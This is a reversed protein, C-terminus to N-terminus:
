QLVSRSVRLTESELFTLWSQRGQGKTQMTARVTM